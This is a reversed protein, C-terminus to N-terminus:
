SIDMPIPLHCPRVFVWLYRIFSEGESNHIRGPRADHMTEGGVVALVKDRQCGISVIGSFGPIHWIHGSKSADAKCYAGTRKAEIAAAARSYGSPAKPSSSTPKTRAM